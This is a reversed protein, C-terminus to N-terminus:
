VSVYCCFIFVCEETVFYIHFLNQVSWKTISHHQRSRSDVHFLSTPFVNVQSYIFYEADDLIHCLCEVHTNKFYLTHCIKCCFDSWNLSQRSFLHCLFALHRPDRYLVSRIAASPPHRIASPPHRISRRLHFFASSLIRISFHPHCFASSVNGIVGHLHYFGKLKRHKRFTKNYIFWAM